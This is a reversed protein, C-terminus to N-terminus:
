YRWCLGTCYVLHFALFGEMAKRLMFLLLLTSIFYIYMCISIAQMGQLRGRAGGHRTRGGGSVGVVGVAGKASRRSINSLCGLPWDRLTVDEM